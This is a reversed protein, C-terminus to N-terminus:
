KINNFCCLSIRVKNTQQSENQTSLAENQSNDCSLVDHKTPNM